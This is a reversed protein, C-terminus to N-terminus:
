LMNICTNKWNIFAEPLGLFSIIDQVKLTDVVKESDERNKM